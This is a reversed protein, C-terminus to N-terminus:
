SARVHSDGSETDLNLVLQAKPDSTIESDFDGSDARHEVRYAGSRPVTLDIDGSLAKATVSAPDTLTLTVNGSHAEARVSKGGAIALGDIDGSRSVLTAAGGIGNVRIDGSHTQLSADGAIRDAAIDGSELEVRASAVQTLRLDGSELRGTVAVGAPAVIEYSVRCMMGCETSLSLRGGSIQYSKAPDGGNSRVIRKITTEAATGTSVTVDGSGGDLAIETIKTKETDDFTLTAGAFDAGCGSLTAATLTAAAAYRIGRATM